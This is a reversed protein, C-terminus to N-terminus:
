LLGNKSGHVIYEIDYINDTINQFHTDRIHKYKYTRIVYSLQSAHIHTLMCMEVLDHAHAHVHTIMVKYFLVCM